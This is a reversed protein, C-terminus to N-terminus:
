KLLRLIYFGGLCSKGVSLGFLAALSSIPTTYFYNETANEPQIKDNRVSQIDHKSQQWKTQSPVTHQIQIFLFQWIPEWWELPRMNGVKNLAWSPHPNPFTPTLIPSQFLNKSLKQEYKEQKQQRGLGGGGHACRTTVISAISCHRLPPLPKRLPDM